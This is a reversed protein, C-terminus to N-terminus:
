EIGHRKLIAEIDAEDDTTAKSPKSPQPSSPQAPRGSEVQPRGKNAKGREAKAAERAQRAENRRGARYERADGASVPKIFGAVIFLLVALGLVGIGIWMLTTLTTRQFWNILSKVGNVALQMTGTMFMGVPILALAIGQILNRTSANRSYVLATIASIVFVFGGAVVLALTNDDM